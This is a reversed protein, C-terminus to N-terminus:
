IINKENLSNFFTGIQYKDLSEMTNRAGSESRKMRKVDVIFSKRDGEGEELELNGQFSKSYDSVIDNPESAFSEIAVLKNHNELKYLSTDSKKNLKLTEVIEENSASNKKMLLASKSTLNEFNSSLSKVITLDHHCIKNTDSCIFNFTNKKFVNIIYSYVNLSREKPYDKIANSIIELLAMNGYSYSIQNSICRFNNKLSDQSPNQKEEFSEVLNHIFAMEESGKIISISGYYIVLHKLKNNKFIKEIEVGCRENKKLSEALLDALGEFNQFHKPLILVFNKSNKSLFKLLKKFYENYIKKSSFNRIITMPNLIIVDAKNNKNKMTLFEHFSETKEDPYIVFEM